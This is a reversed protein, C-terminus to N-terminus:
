NMHKMNINTFTFFIKGFVHYVLNKSIDGIHYIEGLDNMQLM